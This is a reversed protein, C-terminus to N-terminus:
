VNAALGLESLAEDDTPIVPFADRLEPPVQHPRGTRMDVFVWLTEARAIAKGDHERWFLYRRPSSRSGMGKVWTYISLTDGEFAPSVYEIFHSRVFWSLGTALYREVPWGQAASHATAVEQMWRLYELNNVHGNADIAEPTVEVSRTYIRPM